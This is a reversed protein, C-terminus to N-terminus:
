PYGFGETEELGGLVLGLAGPRVQRAVGGESSCAKAAMRAAMAM